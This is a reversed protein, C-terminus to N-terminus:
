RTATSKLPQPRFSAPTSASLWSCRTNRGWLAVDGGADGGSEIIPRALEGARENWHHIREEDAADRNMLAIGSEYIRGLDLDFLDIQRSAEVIADPGGAAGRRYSTTADFPVPILVFEAGDETSSLGFIGSDPAAAANPDFQADTM